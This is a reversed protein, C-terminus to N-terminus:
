GRETQGGPVSMARAVATPLTPAISAAIADQSRRDFVGFFRELAPSVPRTAMRMHTRQGPHRDRHGSAASSNVTSFGVAAGSGVLVVSVMVVSSKGINRM